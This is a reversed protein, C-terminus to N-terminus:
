VKKSQAVPKFILCSLPPIEINLSNDRGHWAVPESKLIRGKPPTDGGFDNWDSNFVLRYRGEQPIGIRFEPYHRPQFNLVVVLFDKPNKARRCFALISQSNNNVDIWEFGDWNSDMEWLAKEKQYFHNLRCVYEKLKRHSDYDLLLWDLEASDRWEIFQAIEGGMFLLKKGPHTFFYGYLARLGAFQQEYSGPMRSLLSQKGHVVEDHSLPLVFNESFAYTLSFTLLQHHYQRQSFDLKMYRLTDNMWGMNWKYNYGLGHVEVPYTVLPWDTSEEAIMMVGPFERFVVTNLKRMFAIAELNERGGEINPKWSGPSKGYDLYLMSSVGDVRLGDIHYLSLWFLANSILFSLVETKGFDFIYTGWEKHEEKEFAAEGNFLGLGHADKCFHGPVWDLLVGIGAQHCQDVFYMFDQPEGYRRTCAYYGTVQYGWSGDFPHEMIPLLEIHTYGMEKVYPILEEALERWSYFEGDPHQRWSGLHVEYIALPRDIETRRSRKKLWNQDKWSYTDLDCVVSATHPRLEASFAYPDAKYLVEGKKTQIQYKYCQGSLNEPIFLTWVGTDGAEQMAMCQSGWGNFDGVLNVGSVSPAWVAFHTGLVGNHNLLHAGFKLYSHHFEGRNFLYIEEQSLFNMNDM